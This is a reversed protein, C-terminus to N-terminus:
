YPKVGDRARNFMPRAARAQGGVPGGTVPMGPARARECCDLAPQPGGCVRCVHRFRYGRFNCRKNNFSRCAESSAGVPPPGGTSPPTWARPRAMALVASEIAKLRSGVEPDPDEVMPCDRTVHTLSLCLDCRTSTRASGAFCISYLSPNVRSWQRNSTAAAQRRFAADYNVWAMGGFDQSVRLICILYAMLEPTAEPHKAAMVSTYVVFCQVWTMINTVKKKRALKTTSTTEAGLKTGPVVGWYEPLLEAMEVFDWRQIREALKIPVPPLGEGVYVGPSGSAPGSGGVALLNCLVAAASPATGAGAPSTAPQTATTPRPEASTRDIPGM